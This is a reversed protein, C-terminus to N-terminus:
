LAEGNDAPIIVDKFEAVANEISRRVASTTITAGTIATIENNKLLEDRNSESWNGKKVLKIGTSVNLGTFQRQFWPKKAETEKKGALIDWFNLDSIVEESRAGLGPTETQQLIYIGEIMFKENIGIMSVINGSYGSESAIFAYGNQKKGGDTKEATWYSVSNGNINIKKETIKGYGPLVQSLARQEKERNLEEIRGSTVTNLSALIVGSILAITGLILTSKVTKNM